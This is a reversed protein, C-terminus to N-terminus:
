SVLKDKESIIGAMAIAFKKVGYRCTTIKIEDIFQELQLKKMLKFNAPGFHFRKIQGNGDGNGDNPLFAAVSNTAGCEIALSM